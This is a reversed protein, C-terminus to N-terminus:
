LEDSIHQTKSGYYIGGQIQRPMWAAQKNQKYHSM